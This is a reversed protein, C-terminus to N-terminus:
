ELGLTGRGAKFDRGCRPCHLGGGPPEELAYDFSRGCDCESSLSEYGCVICFCDEPAYLRFRGCTECRKAVRDAAGSTDLRSRAAPADSPDNAAQHGDPATGSTDLRSRHGDPATM